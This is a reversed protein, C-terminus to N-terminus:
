RPAKAPLARCSALSARSESETPEVLMASAGGSLLVVLGGADRSKRALELARLGASASATNPYPHSADFPELQHPLPRSGTSPGAIVGRKIADGELYMFASVMPWAGKGAAVIFLDPAGGAARVRRSFVSNRYARQILRSPDVADVAARLIRGADARM